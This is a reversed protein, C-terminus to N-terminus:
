APPVTDQLSSDWYHWDENGFHLLNRVRGEHSDTNMEIEVLDDKGKNYIDYFAQYPQPANNGYYIYGGNEAGGPEVNTYRIDGTDTAADWNWDIRLLPVPQDPDKQLIWYGTSGGLESVGTFWNFKSYSGEKSIYMDWHVETDVVKTYLQATYLLGGVTVSYSRVWSGDPQKVPIHHFSELFAGVPIAMGVRIVTNWVAVNFAAYSFYSNSQASVSQQAVVGTVSQASTDTMVNFDAAMSASPPLTPAGSTDTSAKEPANCAVLLVTGMVLLFFKGTAALLYKERLHKM